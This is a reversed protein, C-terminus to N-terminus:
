LCKEFKCVEDIEAVVAWREKVLAGVEQEGGSM